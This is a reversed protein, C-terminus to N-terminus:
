EDVVGRALDVALDDIVTGAQAPLRRVQLVDVLPHIGVGPPLHDGQGRLGLSGEEEVEKGQRQCKYRFATKKPTPKAKRRGAYEETIM